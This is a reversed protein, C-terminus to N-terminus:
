STTRSAPANYGFAPGGVRRGDHLSLESQQEGGGGCDGKGAPMANAVIGCELANDVGAVPLVAAQADHVIRHFRRASGVLLYTVNHASSSV